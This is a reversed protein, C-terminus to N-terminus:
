APTRIYRRRFTASGDPDTAHDFDEWGGIERLSEWKLGDSGWSDADYHVFPNDMSCGGTSCLAFPLWEKVDDRTAAVPLRVTLEVKILLGEPMTERDSM